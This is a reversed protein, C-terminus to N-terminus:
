NKHVASAGFRLPIHQLVRTGRTTEPTVGSVQLWSLEGHKTGDLVPTRVGGCNPSVGFQVRRLRTSCVANTLKMRM